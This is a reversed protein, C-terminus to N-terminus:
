DLPILPTMMDESSRLSGLRLQVAEENTQVIRSDAERCLALLDAISIVAASESTGQIRTELNTVTLPIIFKISENSLFKRVDRALNGTGMNDLLRLSKYYNEISSKVLVNHEHSGKFGSLKGGVRKMAKCEIVFVLEKLSAVVDIDSEEKQTDWLRLSVDPPLFHEVPVRHPVTKLGQKRLLRRCHIEFYRGKIESDLFREYFGNPKFISAVMVRRMSFIYNDNVV